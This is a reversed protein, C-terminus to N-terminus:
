QSDESEEAAPALAAVSPKDHTVTTLDPLPPLGSATRIANQQQLSFAMQTLGVTIVTGDARGVGLVVWPPQVSNVDPDPSQVVVWLGPDAATLDLGHYTFVFDGLRHAITGQPLAEAAADAVEAQDSPSLLMFAVLDADGAPVDDIGTASGSTVFDTESLGASTVLQLAHGPGQGDHRSSYDLVGDLVIQTDTTPMTIGASMAGINILAVFFVVYGGVVLLVLSVPFTLVALAARGGHVRQSTAVMLVASVVWWIWVFYSGCYPGLCPFAYAANAGASYCIAEYTRAISSGAGGTLKLVGHTTLGWMGILIAIVLPGGLVVGVSAVFLGLSDSDATIVMIVGVLFLPAGVGVLFFVAWSLLAFRWAQGVRSMTPLSKALRVPQFLSMKVTLLWAKIWGHRKHELWAVRDVVTRQEEVGEAPLLVMEDMRIHNRCSVCDFEGPVLHGQKGTGYYVQDCHPCCFRVSNAVFEFDSPLFASGCEPCLRAKLNWLAYDCNKCRM